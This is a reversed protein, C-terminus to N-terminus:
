EEEMKYYERISRSKIDNFEEVDMLKKAKGIVANLLRLNSKMEFFEQTDVKESMAVNYSLKNRWEILDLLFFKFGKEMREIDIAYQVFKVKKQKTNMQMAQELQERNM